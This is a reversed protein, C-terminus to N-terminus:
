MVRRPAAELERHHVQGATLDLHQGIRVSSRGGTERGRGSSGSRWPFPPRPTNDATDESPRMLCRRLMEAPSTRSASRPGKAKGGVEEVASKVMSCVM